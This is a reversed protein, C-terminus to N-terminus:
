DGFAQLVNDDSVFLELFNRDTSARLLSRRLVTEFRNYQEILDDSLETYSVQMGHVFASRDDYFAEAEEPTITFGAMQALRPVRLKFQATAKYKSVKLLSEYSSVLSACRQDLYYTHFAHDIHKRARRVRDPADRIYITLHNRLEEAEKENLWDRWQTAVIWAHAGHGQTPGPVITKLNGDHFYLRASNHSSITTPRILRSVFLTLSIHIQHDWAYYNSQDPEVKRCFAYRCGYQRAPRFNLGAPACADFVAEADVDHPLQGIWFDPGLFFNIAPPPSSQWERYDAIFAGTSQLVVDFIDEAM